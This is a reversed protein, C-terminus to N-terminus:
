STGSDVSWPQGIGDPLTFLNLLLQKGKLYSGVSLPDFIAKGSLTGM